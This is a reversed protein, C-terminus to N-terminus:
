VAKPPPMGPATTKRAHAARDEATLKPDRNVQMTEALCAALESPFLQANLDKAQAQTVFAFKKQTSPKMLPKAMCWLVAAARSFDVVVIRGIREAFVTGLMVSLAKAVKLDMNLHVQLGYMDVVFTVTGLDGAMKCASEFTIIFQEYLASLPGAQSKACVYVVPHGNSDRGIIRADSRTECHLTQFLRREKARLELAQIFMQVASQADNVNAKLMRVATPLTAWELETSGHRLDNIRRSWEEHTRQLVSRALALDTCDRAALEALGSLECDTLRSSSPSGSGSSSSQQQCAEGYQRIWQLLEEETEACDFFRDEKEDCNQSTPLPPLDTFRVVPAKPSSSRGGCCCMWSDEGM